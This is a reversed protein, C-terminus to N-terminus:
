VGDDRAQSAGPDTVSTQIVNNVNGYKELNLSFNVTLKTTLWDFESELLPLVIPQLKM